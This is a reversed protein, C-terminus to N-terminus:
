MSNSVDSVPRHDIEVLVEDTGGIDTTEEEEGGAVKVTAGTGAAVTTGLSIEGTATVTEAARVAGAEERMTVVVEEIVEIAM